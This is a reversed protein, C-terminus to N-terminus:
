PAKKFIPSTSKKAFFFVAWPHQDEHKGAKLIAIYSMVYYASREMFIAAASDVKLGKARMNDALLNTVSDLEAYTLSVGEHSYFIRCYQIAEGGRGRIIQRVVYTEM